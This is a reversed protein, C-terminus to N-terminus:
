KSSLNKKNRINNLYNKYDDLFYGEEKLYEIINPLEIVESLSNASVLNDYNDFYAFKDSYKYEEYHIARVAEAPNTFFSNLFDDDNYLFDDDLDKLHEEIFDTYTKIENLSKM